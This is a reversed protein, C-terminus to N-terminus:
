EPDSPQIGTLDTIMGSRGRAAEPSFAPLNQRVVVDLFGMAAAGTLVDMYDNFAGGKYSALRNVLKLYEAHNVEKATYAKHIGVFTGTVFYKQEQGNTSKSAELLQNDLQHKLKDYNSM